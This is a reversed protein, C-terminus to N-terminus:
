QLDTGYPVGICACWLHEPHNVYELFPLEVRSGHGNLLFFPMAGNSRDFVKLHDLTACIDVLIESTMSGKPSWRVLCPVKIGHVMCTPGGPFKKGKGSNKLFYDDDDISGITEAFMDIGTEVEAKPREGAMIVVCMLPDGTLM